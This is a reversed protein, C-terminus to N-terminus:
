MLINRPLKPLQAAHEAILSVQSGQDLLMRATQKSLLLPIITLLIERGNTALHNSSQPTSTFITKANTKEVTTLM